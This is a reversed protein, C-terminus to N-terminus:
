YRFHATAPPYGALEDATTTAVFTFRGHGASRGSQRVDPWVLEWNWCDNTAATRTHAGPSDPHDRGWDWITNGNQRVVFDVERRSSYTLRGGSTDDRCATLRLRVGGAVRTASIARCWGIGGVTQGNSFDGSCVQTGSMTGHTRYVRLPIDNSHSPQAHTAGNSRGDSVALPTRHTPVVSGLGPTSGTSSTGTDRTRPTVLSAAPQHIHGLVTPPAPSPTPSATRDHGVAPPLPKLVDAGGAAGTLAVVVAAAAATAAGGATVRITRVRRRRGAERRVEQLGHPPLPEPAYPRRPLGSM